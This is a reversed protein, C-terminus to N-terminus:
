FPSEEMSNTLHVHQYLLTATLADYKHVRQYSNWQQRVENEIGDICSDSSCSLWCIDQSIKREVSEEIIGEPEVDAAQSPM